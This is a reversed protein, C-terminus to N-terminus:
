GGRSHQKLQPEEKSRDQGRYQHAEDYAKAPDSTFPVHNQILRKFDDKMAVAEGPTIHWQADGKSEIYNVLDQWSTPKADHYIREVDSKKYGPAFSGTPNVVEVGEVKEHPQSM